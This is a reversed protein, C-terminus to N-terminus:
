GGESSSSSGTTANFVAGREGGKLHLLLALPLMSYLGERGGGGGGKLHLLLALPLM